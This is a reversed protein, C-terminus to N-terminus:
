MRNAPFPHKLIFFFQYIKKSSNFGVARSDPLAPFTFLFTFMRSFDPKVTWTSDSEKVRKLIFKLKLRKPENDNKDQRKQVCRSSLCYLFRVRKQSILTQKSTAARKGDGERCPSFPPLKLVLM